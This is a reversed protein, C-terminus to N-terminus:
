GMDNKQAKDVPGMCLRYEFMAMLPPQLHWSLYSHKDMPVFASDIIENVMCYWKFHWVLEQSRDRCQLQEFPSFYIHMLTKTRFIAHYRAVICKDFIYIMYALKKFRYVHM